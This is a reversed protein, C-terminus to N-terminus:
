YFLDGTTEAITQIVTKSTTKLADASLQKHHALLEKSCKDCKKSINKSIKKAFSLCGNRTIFM